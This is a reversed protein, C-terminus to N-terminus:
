YNEIKKKERFYLFLPLGGAIGLAFTYIWVWYVQKINLRKSEKFSWILFLVVIFLLDTIFASSIHNAFMGSFTDLPYRYLLYNGSTLSEQLVFYNPLLTGLVTLLIYNTKM